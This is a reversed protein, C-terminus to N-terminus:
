TESMTHVPKHCIINDKHFNIVKCDYHWFIPCLINNAGSLYHHLSHRTYHKILRSGHISLGQTMVPRTM